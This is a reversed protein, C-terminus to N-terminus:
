IKPPRKSFLRRKLNGMHGDMTMGKLWRSLMAVDRRVLRIDYESLTQLLPAPPLKGRQGNHALYSYVDRKSAEVPLDKFHVLRNRLDFLRILQNMMEKTKKKPRRLAKALMEVKPRMNTQKVVEWLPYFGAPANMLFVEVYERALTTGM